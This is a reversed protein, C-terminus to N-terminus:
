ALGRLQVRQGCSRRATRAIIERFAERQNDLRQGVQPGSDHMMSPSATAQLRLPMGTM